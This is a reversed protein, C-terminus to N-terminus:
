RAPVALSVPVVITNGNNVFEEPAAQLGTWESLLRMIGRYGYLARTAHLEARFTRGRGSWVCVGSCEPCIALTFSDCDPGSTVRRTQAFFTM